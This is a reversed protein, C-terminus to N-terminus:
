GILTQRGLRCTTKLQSVQTPVPQNHSLAFGKRWM